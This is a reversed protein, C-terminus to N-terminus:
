LRAGIASAMRQGLDPGQKPYLYPEILEAEMVALRGDPLRIMDIRAYLLDTFPLASLVQRASELDEPSPQHVAESGGYLSQIRYEGAAARKRIAHSFTGDILVFSYEGEETVSPLFPQVMCPRGMRWDQEPPTDRTFRHQGLGGAGIQRKVVVDHTGLSAMAALVDARDMDGAYLTPVIPAGQEGLERLYTKDTNWRVVEPPNCVAIGRATLAELKALFEGPHDQYDWATGLLVLAIGAFESLPARWDLEVLELGAEAVAPRLAAVELDHEFADGRRPGEGPLTDACALFGIRSM